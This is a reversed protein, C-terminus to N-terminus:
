GRPALRKASPRRLRRTVTLHSPGEHVNWCVCLRQPGPSEWFFEALTRDMYRLRWKKSRMYAHSRAPPSLFLPPHPPGTCPPPPPLPAGPKQAYAAEADDCCFRLRIKTLVDQRRERSCMTRWTWTPPMPVAQALTLCVVELPRIEESPRRWLRQPTQGQVASNM